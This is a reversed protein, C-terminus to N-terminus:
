MIKHNGKYGFVLKLELKIKGKYVNNLLIIFVLIILFYSIMVFISLYKLSVLFIPLILLLPVLNQLSDKVYQILSEKLLYIVTLEFLYNFIINIVVFGYLAKVFGFRSLFILVFLKATFACITWILEAKPKKIAFPISSLPNMILTSLISFFSALLYPGIEQYKEGLILPALYYVLLAYGSFLLWWINMISFRYRTIRQSIEKYSLHSFSSFFVQALSNTLLFVPTGILQYAIFYVGVPQPSFFLGLIYVPAESGLTSMIGTTTAYYCYASNSKLYHYAKTIYKFQFSNILYKWKNEKNQWLLYLTELLDGIFFCLIFIRFDRYFMLTILTVVSYFTVNITEAIAIHKFDFDAQFDAKIARRVIELLGLIAGYFMIQQLLISHYFHGAVPAIIILGLFSLLGTIISIQLLLPFKEKNKEIIYIYDLSFQGMIVFFVLILSFERFTGLDAKDFYFALVLFLIFTMVRRLVSTLFLWKVALVTKSM